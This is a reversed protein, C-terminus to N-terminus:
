KILLYTTMMPIKIIKEQKKVYETNKNKRKKDKKQNSFYEDM